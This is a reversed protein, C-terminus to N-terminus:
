GTPTRLRDALVRGVRAVHPAETMLNGHTADITHVDVRGGIFPQWSSVHLRERDEEPMQNASFFLVDGDFFGPQFKRMIRINNVFVDKLALIGAPELHALPEDTNKLFEPLRLLVADQDARLEAEDFEFGMAQLNQAIIEHDVVERDKADDAPPYSDLLALLEVSEGEARLRVALAHASLGGFSWGAIRYPGNPQVSRVQALYDEVMEDMDAALAGGGDLGRAQLGYVPVDPLHRGLGAYCWSYGSGPHLCFLPASSGRAKLPLLVAASDRVGAGEGDALSAALAAVTPAEFIRRVPVEAGLEAHIRGVLSAALFSHGGLEFFDDEVGVATLGLVGGFLECLARELAIEPERSVAGASQEPAPLAARDLKGNATLPLADLVVFASPVMHDPLLGACHGRLGGRDPAAGDAAVLYAVLRRDGPRDERVVVAAQAIDAHGTLVKEVEGPEIRFGRIKVQGDARGLYLLQGDDTWRALDGTRYMRAGATGYPDAVFRGATLAPRGGYGRALSPGAIYLEGPVGAPLPRLHADLIRVATNAVPAGIPVAVPWRDTDTPLQYGTVVHTEAPGYHNHLRLGPRAALLARLAGHPTLAEGAQVLDTLRPLARGRAVAAEAVADLVLNPAYLEQIAARELWEALAVPDRRTDEDCVVLTKGSLLASLTEQVSVDFSVATFQAVRTGPGGPLAGEHWELLNATSAAPMVVGKPRGTSGSTYIVYAPHAPDLPACREADTVDTAPLAALAAVTPAADVTVTADAVAPPLVHAHAATTLVCAPRADRLMYAIREAPYEPDLPLYGAGAKLVALLATVLEASRPMAVAVLSEPGVGRAILARAVRNARANLEAYGVAGGPHEVAVADPHRAAQEEFREPLSAGGVALAPGDWEALVQRREADSLIEIDGIRRRPDATVAQLLRLLRAVFSEATSGDFLDTSFELVAGLGAPAGEADRREVFAFFLDFKATGADAQAPAVTLGALQGSEPRAAAEQDANSYTLMTQFLPHRSLSRSPRVEEVLREFPLDQHTYAALDTERVRTLLDGFAPNGSTDTRLVLTNVFFGVLDDLADDTRGAVPTGLPIDGGAGLRTLLAAVAAQLVMFPSAQASRSLAVIREHLDKPVEYRVRDGRHSETAPRPRDTPLALEDPAGALAEKWYALQRAARSDTDSEVGLTEHQWLSYDAYSVPLPSWAPAEGRARATYAATLDRTLLPMSWEDGAIHHLLLLLVHRDEGSAFLTARLPVEASLDFAYSVAAAVEDALRDEPVRRVDLVPRARDGDLVTQYPGEADEAFVTRLSEHRESLDALAARLADHDLAGTLHLGLPINYTASPGEFQHLFWLRRQAFSVPVRDPRPVVPTVRRRAGDAGDLLRALAAVTPTEFLQRISLEANLTTRIRSTLRTATLSHGGLTFFNDDLTVSPVDLTDAFLACLVEEQPTTPRRGTTTPTHDPAPLATRDLKGNPTLPLADLTIYTSPVMYDPLTHALHTRLATSDVTGVTGATHTTDTTDDTHGTDATNITHPVLYATLRQDGPQDERVIVTCQAISHHTALATEIEGLEIRFGRLKIQHDARGLYELHNHTTWRVIDGTRYMRQGAPGFPSATFRQATLDPRNLYGRALGDGTVYLEGATGPPVPRLAHDLVYLGLDPIAQGIISGPQTAETTTDLPHHTVHVTTETIGYMNVLQPTHPTHHTYWDTLRAPDLAEGGFIITRLTLRSSTHPDATDAQILQYFASPTQNLVTVHQDALLHLFDAPSRSTTYPVVVLRGGHLLPGWLEWVSFDFAYSHFLTWVDDHDFHFWHRTADFLRTVNHHPIVAGKPTGTSGSTYIVYAAHQPQLAPLTPNSDDTTTLLHATDPTDLLLTPTDDPLHGAPGTSTILLLPDADTLMFTIRDAPYDPDIPLYAAGAKLVALLAVVLETSRPLAVAILQDPGAGRETLLRALRNARANLDAYTTHEDEFVVATAHPTRAAQTQFLEPLVPGPAGAPTPPALLRARETGTLVDIRGVPRDPVALLGELVCVLREGLTTAAAHDFVDPRHDLRFRLAPGPVAVLTLPYHSHDTTRQAVVRVAGPEAPGSDAQTLRGADHPYNEFVVVTDFLEAHGAADQIDTLGLYQHPLLGAQTRQLRTLMDAATEAPRLALRLPVTNIFLGVMNEVGPIEPPRGSVTVGFAVDDRGLLQAILLSWAGQVLTNVTLGHARARATLAATSEETLGFDIREPLGPEADGRQGAPAFLSPEDLGALAATWEARAEDRNQAALWGFFTRYPAVPPLAAVDCGNAYLAFLENLLISLSWGDFLLHHYTLAFRFRQAGTRVLTFRLLPPAAPDFRTERDTRIREESRATRTADDPVDTLDLESWPAPVSRPVIQVPTSLGDHRFGVRLTAHRVLLTEVASRLLGTDLPGEIDLIHQSVYVDPADLDYLSHFLLGEQLSTLPLIDQLGSRPTTM